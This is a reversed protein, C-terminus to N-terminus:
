KLLLFVWIKKFIRLFMLIIMHVVDCIEVVELILNLAKYYRSKIKEKPVSLGSM